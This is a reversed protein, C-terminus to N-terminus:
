NDRRKKGGPKGFLELQEMRQDEKEQQEIYERIVADDIGVTSVFFGRTWFAQGTYNRSKGLFFRAVHIASKGKIYGVVSSVPFKPPIWILIHVHDPCCVGREIRSEKHRALEHFVEGLRSRLEGYLVKKRYKPIFVVHYKCKWKTHSLSQYDDM